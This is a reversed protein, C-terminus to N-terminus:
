LVVERVEPNSCGHEYCFDGTEIYYTAEELSAFIEGYWVDRGYEWDAIIVYFKIM